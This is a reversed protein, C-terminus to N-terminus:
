RTCHMKTKHIKILSLLYLIFVFIVDLSRSGNIPIVTEANIKLVDSNIGIPRSVSIAFLKEIESAFAPINIVTYEHITINSERGSM